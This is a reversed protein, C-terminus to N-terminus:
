LRAHDAGVQNPGFRLSGPDVTSSDFEATSLIAVAIRANSKPHLNNNANSPTLKITVTQTTADAGFEVAGIDCVGVRAQELQDTLPCVNPNGADIAPSDPVLPFHSKGPREDDVFSALGRVDFIDTPHLTLDCAGLINNGLSRVNQPVGRSYCDANAPDSSTNGAIISNQVEIMGLPISLSRAIGGAILGQNAVITSNLIKLMRCQGCTIAANEGEAENFAVTTNELIMPGNTVISGRNRIYASNILNLGGGLDPVDTVIGGNNDRFTTNRFESIGAEGLISDNFEILVSVATINGDRNSIALANSSFTTSEITVFGGRNSLGVRNGM